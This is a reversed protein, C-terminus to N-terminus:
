LDEEAALLGIEMRKRVDLLHIIRDDIRELLKRTYAANLVDGILRIAHGIEAIESAYYELDYALQSGRKM